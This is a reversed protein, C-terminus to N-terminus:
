LSKEGMWTLVMRAEAAHDADKVTGPLINEGLTEHHMAIRRKM